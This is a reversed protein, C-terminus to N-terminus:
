FRIVIILTIVLNWLDFDNIFDFDNNELVRDSNDVIDSEM